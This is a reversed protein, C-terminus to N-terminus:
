IKKRFWTYLSPESFTNGKEIATPATNSSLAAEASKSVFGEVAGIWVFVHGDKIAVDGARLKGTDVKGVDYIQEWNKNLWTRQGVTNTGPYDPEFSSKVMLASVFAGCDNGGNGGKYRGKLAATYDPKQESVRRGDEWAFSKVTEAFNGSQGAATACAAASNGGVGMASQTNGMLESAMDGRGNISGISWTADMTSAPREYLIMFIKAADKEGGEKDETKKLADFITDKADIYEVGARKLKDLRGAATTSKLEGKYIFDLEVELFADNVEVPVGEPIGTKADPTGGYKRTYYTDYYKSTRIDEKLVKGIKTTPTFQAIGYGGNSPVPGDQSSGQGQIRFASYNPSESNFNAMIGAIATHGLGKSSFYSVIKKFNTGGTMGSLSVESCTCQNTPDWFENNWTQDREKEEASLSTTCAGGGGGIGDFIAKVPTHDSACTTSSTFKTPDGESIPKCDMTEFSSPASISSTKYYIHDIRGGTRMIAGPIDRSNAYGVTKLYREINGEDRRDGTPNANFDGLLFLPGQFSAVSKDALAGKVVGLRETDCLASSHHATPHVNIVMFEQNSRTTFTAVRAAVSGSGADCRDAPSYAKVMRDEVLTLSSSNYVINLQDTDYGSVDKGYSMRWSPNLKQLTHELIKADGSKADRYEQLGVVDYKMANINQTIQQLRDRAYTSGDGHYYGLINYTGVALPLGGGATLSVIAEVPLHDSGKQDKIEVRSVSVGNQLYIHDIPDGNRRDGNIGAVTSSSDINVKNTALSFADSFGAGTILDDASSGTKANMDGLFIIPANKMTDRVLDLAKNVQKVRCANTNVDLHTTMVYFESGSATEKLKVWTIRKTSNNESGCKEHNLALVNGQDTVSFKSSKWFIDVAVNDKSKSFGAAGLGRKLEARSDDRVEQIAAIDVTKLYSLIKDGRSSKNWSDLETARINYTAVKFSSGTSTTAASAPNNLLTLNGFSSSFMFVIAACIISARRIIESKKKNHMSMAVKHSITSLTCVKLARNIIVAIRM